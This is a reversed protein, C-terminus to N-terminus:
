FLVTNPSVCLVTFRFDQYGALNQEREAGVGDIGLSFVFILVHTM